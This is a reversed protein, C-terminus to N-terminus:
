AHLTVPTWTGDFEQTDRWIRRDETPALAKEVLREPPGADFSAHASISEEDFDVVCVGAHDGRLTGANLLTLGVFDILVRFHMHGNILYRHEGEELVVDLETSREVEEPNRGPWVKALDNEAVGHCLLLSGRSTQLTQQKPLEALYALNEDSLEDAHHADAVHRAKGTLLWRDHNGSVTHVGADRLLECSSNICGRGDAIDGTCVVADIRQQSFWNLVLELRVHESHLDGIIGLRHIRQRAMHREQTGLVFWILLGSATLHNHLGVPTTILKVM